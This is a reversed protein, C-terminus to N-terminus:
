EKNMRIFIKRIAKYHDEDLLVNQATLWFAMYRDKTALVQGMEIEIWAFIDEIDGTTKAKLLKLQGAIQAAEDKSKANVTSLDISIQNDKVAELFMKRLARYHRPNTGIYGVSSMLINGKHTYDLKKSSEVEAWTFLKEIEEVGSAWSMKEELLDIFKELPTVEDFAKALSKDYSEVISQLESRKSGISEPAAEKFEAIAQTAAHQNWQAEFTAPDAVYEPSKRAQEKIFENIDTIRGKTLLNKVEEADATVAINDM